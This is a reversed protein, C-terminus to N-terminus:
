MGRRIRQAKTFYEEIKSVEGSSLWDQLMSLEDKLRVIANMVNDKNLMIIDRWLEPSSAAIRTMDRFGKGAFSVADGRIDKVVNVLCYSLLHPFHSVLNYIEDHEYPDMYDIRCGVFEWLSVTREIFEAGTNETPTIICLADQFLRSDCYRVGSDHSGAIPHSGVYGDGIVSEISYVLDGKVSGIDTVLADRKIIPAIERVIPMFSGVPTSLVILDAELCVEKIDMSYGDIIGRELAFRLNPETRGYGLIRARCGRERISSALSAGLLGVGLIAVTKFNM